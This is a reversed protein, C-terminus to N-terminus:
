AVRSGDKTQIQRIASFRLHLAMMSTLIGATIPKWVLMPISKRLGKTNRLLNLIGDKASEGQSHSMKSAEIATVM